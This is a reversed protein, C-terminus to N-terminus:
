IRFSKRRFNSFISESSIHFQTFRFSFFQSRTLLVYKFHIDFHELTLYLFTIMLGGSCTGLIYTTLYNSPFHNLFSLGTLYLLVTGGALFISSTYVLLLMHWFVGFILLATGFFVLLMGWNLRNLYKLNLFMIPYILKFTISSIAM